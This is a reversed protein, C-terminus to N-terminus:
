SWWDINQSYWKVTKLLKDEFDSSPNFEFISNIKSNDIAYRIDHGPRDKVFEYSGTVNYEVAFIESLKQVIELNSLEMEGGINITENNIGAEYLGLIGMVHDEVFIWDRINEGNGYLGFSQNSLFSQCIKPILKETFQRPGFNNSCNTILYPLNFTRGWSKVLLDASAKSASYPSSPNISSRETFPAENTKLDGYVEDTSIQHFLRLDSLKNSIMLLNHTGAINTSIFDKSNLISNDVHSEAAFNVILDPNFRCVEQELAELNRLDINQFAYNNLSALLSLTKKSTCYSLNDINLILTNPFLKNYIEIFNSGIFGGGGTVLVKKYM